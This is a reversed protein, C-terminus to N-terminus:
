MEVIDGDWCPWSNAGLNTLRLGQINYPRLFLRNLGSGDPLVGGTNWTRKSLLKHNKHLPLHSSLVRSLLQNNYCLCRTCQSWRRGIWRQKPFEVPTPTKKNNKKFPCGLPLHDLTKLLITEPNSFFGQHIFHPFSRSYENKHLGSGFVLM